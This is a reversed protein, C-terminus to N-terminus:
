SRVKFKTPKKLSSEVGTPTQLYACPVWGEMDDALVRVFWWGACGVKKLEVVDGEKMSVESNGMACYDALSIFKTGQASM